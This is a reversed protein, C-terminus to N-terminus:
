CRQGGEKKHHALVPLGSSTNYIRRKLEEPNWGCLECEEPLCKDTRLADFKCPKIM